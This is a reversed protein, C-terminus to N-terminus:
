SPIDYRNDSQASQREATKRARSSASEHLADGLEILLLDLSVLNWKSPYIEFSKLLKNIKGASASVRTFGFMAATGYLQHTISDLEALCHYDGERIRAILASVENLQGLARRIYRTGIEELQNNIRTDM